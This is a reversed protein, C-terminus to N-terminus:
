YMARRTVDLIIAGFSDMEINALKTSGSEYIIKVTSDDESLELRDVSIKARRLTEALTNEVFEKKSMM